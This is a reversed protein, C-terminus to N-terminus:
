RGRFRAPRAVPYDRSYLSENCPPDANMYERMARLAKRISRM